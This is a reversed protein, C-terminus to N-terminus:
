VNNLQEIFHEFKVKDEKRPIDLLRIGLGPTTGADSATDPDLLHVVQGTVFVENTQHTNPIFLWFNIRSDEPISYMTKLFIGNKSINDVTIPLIAEPKELIADLKRLFRKEVRRDDNLETM